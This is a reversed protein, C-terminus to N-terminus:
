IALANRRSVFYFACSDILGATTVGGHQCRVLIRMKYLPQIRKRECWECDYGRMMAKVMICPGFDRRRRARSLNAASETWDGDDAGDAVGSRVRRQLTEGRGVAPAL